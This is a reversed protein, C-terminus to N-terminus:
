TANRADELIKELSLVQDEFRNKAKETIEGKIEMTKVSREMIQFIGIEIMSNHLKSEMAMEALLFTGRKGRPKSLLMIEDFRKLLKPIEKKEIDRLTISRKANAYRSLIHVSNQLGRIYNLSTFLIETVDIKTKLMAEMVDFLKYINLVSPMLGDQLHQDQEIWSTSAYKVDQRNKGQIREIEGTKCMSKLYKNYTAVSAPNEADKTVYTELEKAVTQGHLNLYTRIYREIRKETSKEDFKEIEKEIEEDTPM